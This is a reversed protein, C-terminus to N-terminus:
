KGKLGFFLLVLMGIFNLVMAGLMIWGATDYPFFNFM